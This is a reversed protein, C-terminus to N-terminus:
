RSRTTPSIAASRSQQEGIPANLGGSWTLYTVGLVIMGAMIMRRLVKDTM